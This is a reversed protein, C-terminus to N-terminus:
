GGHRNRFSRHYPSKNLLSSASVPEAPLQYSTHHVSAKHQAAPDIQFRLVFADFFVSLGDSLNAIFVGFGDYEAITGRLIAEAAADVALCVAVDITGCLIHLMVVCPAIDDVALIIDTFALGAFVVFATITIAHEATMREAVIVVGHAASVGGVAM